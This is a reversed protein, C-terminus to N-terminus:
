PIKCTRVEPTGRTYKGSWTGTSRCSAASAECTLVSPLIQARTRYAICNQLAVDCTTARCKDMAEASTCLVSAVIIGVLAFINNM